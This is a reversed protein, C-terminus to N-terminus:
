EKYVKVLVATYRPSLNLMEIIELERNDIFICNCKPLNSYNVPLIYRQTNKTVKRSDLQIEENTWPTFRAKTEMVAKNETITNGLADTQGTDVANLLTCREWKM